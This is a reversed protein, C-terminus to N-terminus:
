FIWRFGLLPRLVFLGLGLDTANHAGRPIIHLRLGPVFAVNPSVGVRFDLGTTWGLANSPRPTERSPTSWTLTTFSFFQTSEYTDERVYSLGIVAEPAVRRAKAGQVRVLGSVSVDRHRDHFIFRSAQRTARMFTPVGVEAEVSVRPRVFAGFTAAGGIGRGGLGRSPIGTSGGSMVGEHQFSALFSGGVYARPAPMAARPAAEPAWLPERPTAAFIWQLGISSRVFWSAASGIRSSREVGFLRVEPILLLAPTLAVNVYSGATFGWENELWDPEVTIPPEEPRWQVTFRERSYARVFGLGVTAGPQVRADPRFRTRVLAMATIDRHSARAPTGRLSVSDREVLRPFQFEGEIALRRLVNVGIGVSGGPSVGSPGETPNFPGGLPEPAGTATMVFSGTIYASREARSEQAQVSTTLLSVIGAIVPVRFVVPIYALWRPARM